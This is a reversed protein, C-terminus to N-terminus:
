QIRQDNSFAPAAIEADGRQRKKRRCQALTFVVRAIVSLVTQGPRDDVRHGGGPNLWPTRRLRHRREALTTGQLDSVAVQRPELLDGRASSIGLVAPQGTDEAATMVIVGSLIV